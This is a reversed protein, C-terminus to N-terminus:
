NQEAQEREVAQKHQRKTERAQEKKHQERIHEKMTQQLHAAVTYPAQIDIMHQKQKVQQQRLYEQIHKPLEPFKSIGQKLFENHEADLLKDMATPETIRIPYRVPVVREAETFLLHDSRGPIHNDDHKDMDLLAFLSDCVGAGDVVDNMPTLAEMLIGRVVERTHKDLPNDSLISIVFDLTDGM